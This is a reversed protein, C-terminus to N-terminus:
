GSAGTKRPIPLRYALAPEGNLDVNIIPGRVRVMLEVTDGVKFPRNLAGQPPYLHNAGQKYSIQLKPAGIVRCLDSCNDLVIRLCYRGWVIPDM